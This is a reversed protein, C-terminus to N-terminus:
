FFRTPPATPTFFEACISKGAPRIPRRCECKLTFTNRCQTKSFLPKARTNSFVQRRIPRSSGIVSAGGGGGAGVAAEVGAPSKKYLLGDNKMYLRYTGTTPSAPISGTTNQYLNLYQGYVGRWAHEDSGLDYAHHAAATLTPDIPIVHGRWLSFNSNVYASRITTLPAFTYFATITATSPM